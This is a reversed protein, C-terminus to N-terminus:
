SRGLGCCRFTFEVTTGASSSIWRVGAGISEARANINAIGRGGTRHEQLMGHGNDSITLLVGEPSLSTQVCVKTAKAHKVVNAFVEQICRFLQMVGKSEIPQGHADLLPPVSDVDWEMDIGAVKLTSELRRRLTGLITPLDGDMPEMSDLTMRLEELAHTLMQEVHSMPLQVGSRVANLTQVLQSGLGDHMDRTLRAREGVLVKQKEADKIKEFALLLEQEKENVKIVLDANLRQIQEMFRVQRQVLIHGLTLLFVLSGPIMWRLDAEGFLNFQVAFFDRLGTILTVASVVLMLRQPQAIGNRAQYLMLTMSGVALLALAGALLRYGDYTGAVLIALIWLPSVFILGWVFKRVIAQRLQFFEYIFLYLFCCYYTFSLKHLFFWATFGMPPQVTPTLILRLAWAFSAVCLLVYIKERGAWWILGTLLALMASCAAVMWTLYVQWWHLANFRETVDTAKALTITGMGSKRLHLGQVEIELVHPVDMDTDSPLTIQHPVVSTDVYNPTSWYGDHIVRGDLLVRFRAGVRAVLFAWGADRQETNRVFVSLDKPWTLKYRYIDAGPEEDDDWVHPLVVIRPPKTVVNSESVQTLEARSFKVGPVFDHTRTSYALWILLALLAVSVLVWARNTFQEDTDPHHM